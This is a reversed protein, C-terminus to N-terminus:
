HVDPVRLADGTTTPVLPLRFLIPNLADRLIKLAAVCDHGYCAQQVDSLPSTQPEAVAPQSDRVADVNPNDIHLM